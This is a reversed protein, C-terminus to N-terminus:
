QEEGKIEDWIPFAEGFALEEVQASLEELEQQCASIKEKLQSSSLSNREAKLIQIRSQLSKPEQSEQPNFLHQNVSIVDARKSSSGAFHQPVERLPTNINISIKM